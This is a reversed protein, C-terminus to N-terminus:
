SIQQGNLRDALLKIMDLFATEKDMSTKRILQRSLTLKGKVELDYQSVARATLLDTPSNLLSSISDALELKAVQPRYQPNANFDSKILKQDSVKKKKLYSGIQRDFIDSFSVVLRERISLLEEMSMLLQKPELRDTNQVAARIVANYDETFSSQLLPKRIEVVDEFTLLDLIQVPLKPKNITEFFLEIFLKWFIQGESLITKRNSMDALSYDTYNEQPLISECNVVRAGSMQYLLDRFNRLAEAEAAPLGIAVEEILPKDLVEASTIKDTILALEKKSIKSLNRLLVGKTDTLGAIFKQKFWGANDDLKWRVADTYMREYFARMQLLKEASVDEKARDLYYLPSDKQAELAPLILNNSLLVPNERLLDYAFETSTLTSAGSVLQQKTLLLMKLDREIDKRLVADSRNLKRIIHRDFGTFYARAGSLSNAEISKM